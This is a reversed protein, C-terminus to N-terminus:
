GTTMRAAPCGAWRPPATRQRGSPWRIPLLGRLLRPRSSGGDSAPLVPRQAFSALLDLLRHQQFTLLFQRRHVGVFRRLGDALRLAPYQLDLGLQVTPGTIIRM